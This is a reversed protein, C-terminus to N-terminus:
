VGDLLTKFLLERIIIIDYRENDQSINGEHGMEFHKSRKHCLNM